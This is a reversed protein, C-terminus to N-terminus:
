IWWRDFGLLNATRNALYSDISQTQNISSLMSALRSLCFPVCSQQKSMSRSCISIGVVDPGSTVQDDMERMQPSRKGRTGHIEYTKTTNLVAQVCLDAVVLGREEEEKKGCKFAPQHEWPCFCLTKKVSSGIPICLVRWKYLM